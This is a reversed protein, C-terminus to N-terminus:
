QRSPKSLRGELIREGREPGVFYITLLMLLGGFMAWSTLDGTAIVAVPPQESLSGASTFSM